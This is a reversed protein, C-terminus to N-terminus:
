LRVEAASPQAPVRRELDGHFSKLVPESRRRLWQRLLPRLFMASAGIIGCNIEVQGWLLLDTGYKSRSRMNRGWLMLIWMRIASAAIALTGVSLICFLGVRKRRPMNQLSFIIPIPLMFIAVDTAFNIIASILWLTTQDYCRPRPLNRHRHFGSLSYAASIPNCQFISAAVMSLSYLTTFAILVYVTCRYSRFSRSPSSAPLLTKYYFTLISLKIFSLTVIYFPRYLFWTV